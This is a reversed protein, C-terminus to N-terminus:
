FSGEEYLKRVLKEVAGAGESGLGQYELGALQRVSQAEAFIDQVGEAARGNRPDSRWGRVARQNACDCRAHRQRQGNQGNTTGGCLATHRVWRNDLEDNGRISDYRTGSCM